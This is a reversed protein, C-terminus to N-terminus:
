GALWWAAVVIGLAASGALWQGTRGVRRADFFATVVGCGLGSTLGFLHGFIDTQEDGIGTYAFLAIAAFVPAASRRWSTARYYGRRWVFGGLLGLAAFTATSAGIARFDAPEIAANCANALAACVVVLLWALGSGLHRGLLLGFAAGFLSNAVIHGLGAHLTLATVTRWWQGALVLGAQMAGAEQWDRTFPFWAQLTPLLWIVLLYGIVGAWGSDIFVPRPRIPQARPQNEARYADLEANAHAAADAPVLLMWDHGGFEIRHDIDIADLVLGAESLPARGRARRVCIWETFDTTPDM